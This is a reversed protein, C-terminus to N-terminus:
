LGADAAQRPDVAAVCLCLVMTRAAEVDLAALAAASTAGTTVVDDVLVIRMRRAPLPAARVFADHVLARRREHPVRALPPTARRRVLLHEGVPLGLRRGVEHALLASQNFGRERRREAHLPVPVLIAAQGRLERRAVRALRAGFWGALETAGGYKFAHVLAFFEPSPAFASLFRGSHTALVDSASPQLGASCRGCLLRLPLSLPGLLRRRLRGSSLRARGLPPEDGDLCSGCHVCAAPLLASALDDVLGQAGALLRRGWRGGPGTRRGPARM